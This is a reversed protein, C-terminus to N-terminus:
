KSRSGLRVRKLKSDSRKYCLEQEVTGKLYRLVHKATVLHQEKPDALHQSLRSVIFNLDPRICTMVYILSGVVEHTDRKIM